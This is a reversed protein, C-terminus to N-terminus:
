SRCLDATQDVTENHLKHSARDKGERLPKGYSDPTYETCIVM